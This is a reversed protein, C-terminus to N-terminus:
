FKGEFIAQAMILGFMFIGFIFGIGIAELIHWVVNFWFDFKGADEMAKYFKM